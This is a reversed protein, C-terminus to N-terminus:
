FFLKGIIFLLSCCGEASNQCRKQWLSFPSLTSPILTVLLFKRCRTKLFKGPSLQLYHNLRWCKGDVGVADPLLNSSEQQQSRSTAVRTSCTRCHLVSTCSCAAAPGPPTSLQIQCCVAWGTQMEAHWRGTVSWFRQSIGHKLIQLLVASHCTWVFLWFFVFSFSLVGQGCDGTGLLVMLEVVHYSSYTYSASTPHSDHPCDEAFLDPWLPWLPGGPQTGAAGSGHRQVEWLPRLLVGTACRRSFCLVVCVTMLPTWTLGLISLYKLVAISFQYYSCLNWFFM